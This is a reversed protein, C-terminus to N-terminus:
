IRDSVCSKSMLLRLLRRKHSIVMNIRYYEGEINLSHFAVRLLRTCVERRLGENSYTNMGEIM